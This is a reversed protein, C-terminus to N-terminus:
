ARALAKGLARLESLPAVIAVKSERNMLGAKLAVTATLGLARLSKVLAAVRAREEDSAGRGRKNKGKRASRAKQAERAIANASMSKVDLARGRVVVKGRLADAVTDDEPTAGLLLAVSSAKTSTGLAVAEERSMTAVIDILRQAQTASMQLDVKCFDEWSARGFAGPVEPRKLRALAEGIDYFAATIEGRKSRIFAIDRKAEALIRAVKGKALAEARAVLAPPLASRETATALETKATTTPKARKTKTDTKTKSPGRTAPKKPKAM